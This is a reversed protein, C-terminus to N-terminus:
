KGACPMFARGKDEHGGKRVLDLGKLIHAIVDVTWGNGILKYRRTKSLCATYGPPLKQFDECEEPTAPRTLRKDTRLEKISSKKSKELDVVIRYKTAPSQAALTPYKNFYKIEDKVYGHGLRYLFGNFYEDVPTIKYIPINTWYLRRRNQKSFLCSNIEIPEVSLYESIIDQYKKNMKVNEFLFYKPNCEGLLRVFEFFLKSRPDNFNLKKGAFSFGQCPSGGMMLYMKPLGGGKVENVDGLQITKPYNYQTVKIAYKDIESAYYNDVKIGAQELAIQGCSIGDFLSLVNISM